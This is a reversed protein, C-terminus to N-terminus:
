AAQPHRRERIGAFLREFMPALIAILQIITAPDIAKPADPGAATAKPADIQECHTALTECKAALAALAALAADADGSPAAAGVTIPQGFTFAANVLDAVVGLANVAVERPDGAGIAALEGRVHAALQGAGLADLLDAALGVAAKYDRSALASQAARFMPAIRLLAFM